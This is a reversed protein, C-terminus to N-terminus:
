KEVGCASTGDIIAGDVYSGHSLTAMEQYMDMTSLRKMMEDSHHSTIANRVSRKRYSRKKNSKCRNLQKRLSKITKYQERIEDRLDRNTDPFCHIAIFLILISLISVSYLFELIRHM